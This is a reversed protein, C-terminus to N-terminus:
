RRSSCMARSSATPTPLIWYSERGVAPLVRAVALPPSCPDSWRTDPANAAVLPRWRNMGPVEAQSTIFFPPEAAAFRDRLAIRELITNTWATPDDVCYPLEEFPDLLAVDRPDTWGGKETARGALEFFVQRTPLHM